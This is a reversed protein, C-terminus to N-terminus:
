PVEKTERVSHLGGMYSGLTSVVGISGTHLAPTHTSGMCPQQSLVTLSFRSVRSLAWYTVLIMM